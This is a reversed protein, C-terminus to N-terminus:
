VAAPTGATFARLQEVTLSVSEDPAFSAGFVVPSYPMAGFVRVARGGDLRGDVEIHIRDVPVGPRWVTVAVDTLSEAWAVLGVVLEELVGPEIQASVTCAYTGASVGIPVPLDHRSMHDSLAEVM